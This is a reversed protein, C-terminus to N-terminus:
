MRQHEMELDMAIINNNGHGGHVNVTRSWLLQAKERESFLFQYQSLMNFAEISYKYKNTTRFILLMYHWCRLIRLGDAEHVADMYEMYFLGLSLVEQAYEYKHDLKSSKVEDEHWRFHIFKTLQSMAALFLKMKRGPQTFKEFMLKNFNQSPEDEISSMGFFHM